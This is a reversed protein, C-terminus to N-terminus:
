LVTNVNEIRWRAVGVRTDSSRCVQTLPWEEIRILKALIICTM